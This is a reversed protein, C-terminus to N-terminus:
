LIVGEIMCDFSFVNSSSKANWHKMLTVRNCIARDRKVNNSIRNHPYLLLNLAKSEANHDSHKKHTNAAAKETPLSYYMIYTFM